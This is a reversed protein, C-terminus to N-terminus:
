GRRGWPGPERHLGAARETPDVRTAPNQMERGEGGRKQGRGGAQAEGDQLHCAVHLQGATPLAPLPQTLAIQGRLERSTLQPALAPPSDAVPLVPEPPRPPQHCPAPLHLARGRVHGQGPVPSDESSRETRTVISSGSGLSRAVASARSARGTSLCGRGQLTRHNMAASARLRPQARHCTLPSPSPGGPEAGQGPGAQGGRLGQGQLGQEGQEAPEPVPQRVGGAPQLGRTRRGGWRPRRGTAEEQVAAEGAGPVVVAYPPHPSPLPPQPCPPPCADAHHVPFAGM